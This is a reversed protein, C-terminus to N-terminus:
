TLNLDPILRNLEQVIKQKQQFNETSSKEGLLTNLQNFLPIAQQLTQYQQVNAQNSAITDSTIQQLHREWEAARSSSSGFVGSLAAIGAGLAAIGGIVLLVVPNIATIAAAVAGAAQILNGLILIVPGIAAAIAAMVVIVTKSGESLGSFWKVFGDVINSLAPTIRNLADFIVKGLSEMALTLKNKLIVFKEAFDDTDAAAGNITESSTQITHMFDTYSLKGARISEALQPGARAGFYELAISAAQTDSPANKIKDFLEALAQKADEVGEKAFQAFATRLGTLLVTSDIGSKNFLGLISAAEEISFGMDRFLPGGRTVEGMLQTVSIGTSQSIRFFIDLTKGQNETSVNWSNFAQTAADVNATLDTKTIRSLNILQTALGELTPGTIGLRTNLLSVATSVQDMSSPVTTYIKEFSKKLDGLAEGTAGTEVRIKDVAEDYDIATKLALGGLAALPISLNKSLKSGVSELSDGFQTLSKSASEGLEKLRSSASALGSELGSTNLSLELVLKNNEAM